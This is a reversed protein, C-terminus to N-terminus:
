WLNDEGQQIEDIGQTLLMEKDVWLVLWDKGVRAVVFPLM